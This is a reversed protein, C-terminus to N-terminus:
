IRKHALTRVLLSNPNAYKGEQSETHTVKVSPKVGLSNFGEIVAHALEVATSSPRDPSEGKTFCCCDSLESCVEHLAKSLSVGTYM